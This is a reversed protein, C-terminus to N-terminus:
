AHGVTLACSIYALLILEPLWPHRGVHELKRAQTSHRVEREYLRQQEGLQQQLVGVRAAGEEAAEAAAAASRRAEEAAAEAAARAAKHADLARCM